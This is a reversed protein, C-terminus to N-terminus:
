VVSVIVPMLYYNLTPTFDTLFDSFASGPAAKALEGSFLFFSL